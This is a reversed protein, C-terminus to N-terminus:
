TDSGEPRRLKTARQVAGEVSVKCYIRLTRERKIQCVEKIKSLNSKTFLLFFGVSYRILPLPPSTNEQLQSM